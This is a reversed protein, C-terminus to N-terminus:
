LATSMPGALAIYKDGIHFSPRLARFSPIIFFSMKEQMRKDKAPAIARAWVIVTIEGLPSSFQARPLGCAMVHVDTPTVPFTLIMRKLPPAWMPMTRSLTGTVAPEM